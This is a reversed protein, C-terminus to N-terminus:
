YSVGLTLRFGALQFGSVGALSSSVSWLSGHIRIAQGELNGFRLDVGASAQYGLSLGQTNPETGAPPTPLKLFNWALVGSGGFFPQFRGTTFPFVHIGGLFGAGMMTFGPLEAGISATGSTYGLDAAISPRFMGKRKEARFTVVYTMAGSISKGSDGTHMNAGLEVIPAYLGGGGGAAFAGSPVLLLASVFFSLFIPISRM